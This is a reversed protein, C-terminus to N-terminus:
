SNLKSQDDKDQLIFCTLLLLQYHSRYFCISVKKLSDTRDCPCQKIHSEWPWLVHRAKRSPREQWMVELAIFRCFLGNSAM